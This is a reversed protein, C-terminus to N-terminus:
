SDTVTCSITGGSAASSSMSYETVQFQTGNTKVVSGVLAANAQGTITCGAVVYNTDLYQNPIALAVSCLGGIGSGTTCGNATAVQTGTVQGGSTPNGCANFGVALGSGASHAYVPIFSSCTNDHFAVNSYSGAATLPFNFLESTISNGYNGTLLSYQLASQVNVGIAFSDIQNDKIYMNRRANVGTGGGTLVDIGSASSQFYTYIANAYLWLGDANAIGGGQSTTSPAIQIADTNSTNAAFFNGYIQAFKVPGLYLANAGAADMGSNSMIFNLCNVIDADITFQEVTTNEVAFTQPSVILNQALTGGTCAFGTGGTCSWRTQSTSYIGYTSGTATTYATTGLLINGSLWITAYNNGGNLLGIRLGIGNNNKLLCNGCDELDIGTDMAYFFNDEINVFEIQYPQSDTGAGNPYPYAQMGSQNYVKIATVQYSTGNYEFNIGKVFRNNQNGEELPVTLTAQQAINVMATGAPQNWNDAPSLWTGNQSGQLSGYNMLIIPQSIRCRGQPLEVTAPLMPQNGAQFIGIIKLMASVAAQIAPYDDGNGNCVAGYESAKVTTSPMPGSLYTSSNTPNLPRTDFIRINDPNTWTETGTYNPPIIVAGATGAATVAQPITPPFFFGPLNTAQLDVLTVPTQYVYPATGGSLVVDYGSYGSTNTFAQWQGISGATFPNTLVTTGAASTYLTAKTTTGTLYITVTCNPVIGQLKNLSTLGQVIAPTAGQTCWGQLSTLQANGVPVLALLFVLLFWRRM